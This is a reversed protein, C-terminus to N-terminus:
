SKFLNPLSLIELGKKNSAVPHHMLKYRCFYGQLFLSILYLFIHELDFLVGETFRTFKDTIEWKPCLRIQNNNLLSPTIIKNFIM